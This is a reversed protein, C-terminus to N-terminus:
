FDGFDFDDLAAIATQEDDTLPEQLAEAEMSASAGWLDGLLEAVAAKERPEFAGFSRRLFVLSRRFQEPELSQIYSDLQRWLSPRSLLAYRNRLSLGEFWGAGLDAPIGPSLRRSVEQECAEETVAHRELMIAFAYGSLRANRDDRSALEWLQRQWVEDDIREHQDQSVTHLQHIASLMQTAADDSCGAADVLLLAARFFLQQLLPVLVETDTRRLSGYHVLASLEFAAQALATFQQGDVSLRQLAARAEEMCATLGCDCSLRVLKAAEAVDACGALRERIAYAAAWEITEGKLTSEILQIEAEPTWQLVWHESWAPADSRLTRRSAFSVGLLELRHLLISRELDQYALEKTKVRRNERLDLELDTAVASKYKTLKLRKLQRNLDDQIPTQSIGEPLFGISTGIETRVMAEAVVSREGYGLTVVAADRLDELIPQNSGRLSALTQALRVGEIVSATSRYTGQERLRQAIHSLYLSPLNDLAGDQLCDWMLEFYAPAPNGAGYGSQSSLKYYSYPMLTRKTPTRPLKALEQETMPALSGDLGSVHHAGTVVVIKEPPIGAALRRSIELRMYSERVENVASEIPDAKREDDELLRRMQWSLETIEHRYGEMKGDHEFHREWYSEYNQEGALQAIQEYLQHQRTYYQRKSEFAEERAAQLVEDAQESEQRELLAQKRYEYLTVSIDSPLDIFAADAGNAAAWRFAEYEPSYSAFPYLLTRVPLSETYAMLAVPPVVGKASLQSIWETADSPGEVLVVSPKVQDLLTRLHYAGAPSLHRVGFLHVHGEGGSILREDGPM